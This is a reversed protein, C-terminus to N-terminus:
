QQNNNDNKNNLYPNYVNSKPTQAKPADAKPAENGAGKVQNLKDFMAENSKGSRNKDAKGKVGKVILVVIVVIILVAGVVIPIIIALNLVAKIEVTADGTFTVSAFEESSYEQVTGDAFTVVYALKQIFNVEDSPVDVVSSGHTVTETETEGGVHKFTITYQNISFRSDNVALTFNESVTLVEVNFKNGDNQAVAIEEAGFKFTYNGSNIAVSYGDNAGLTSSSAYTYGDTTRTVTYTLVATKVERTDGIKMLGLITESVLVFDYNGNGSMTIVPINQSYEESVEYSFKYGSAIEDNNENKVDAKNTAVLNGRSPDTAPLVVTKTEVIFFAYLTIDQTFGGVGPNENFDIFKDKNIDSAVLDNVNIAQKAEIWGFQANVSSLTYNTFKSAYDFNHVTVAAVESEVLIDNFEYKNSADTWGNVGGGYYVKFSIIYENIRLETSEDMTFTVAQKVSGLAFEYINYGDEERIPATNPSLTYVQSSNGASLTFVLKTKESYRKNLKLVLTYTGGYQAPVSSFEAIILSNYVYTWVTPAFPDNQELEAIREGNLDAGFSLNHGNFTEMIYTNVTGIVRVEIVTDHQALGGMTGQPFVINYVRNDGKDNYGITFAKEPSLAIETKDRLVGNIWIQVQPEYMNYGESPTFGISYNQGFNPTVFGSSNASSAVNNIYSVATGNTAVVKFKYENYVIYPNFTLNESVTIDSLKQSSNGTLEWDVFHQGSEINFSSLAMTAIEQPITAGYPVKITGNDIWPHDLNTKGALLNTQTTANEILKIDYVERSFDLYININDTIILDFLSSCSAFDSAVATDYTVGRNIADTSLYRVGNDIYHSIRCESHAQMNSIVNDIEEIVRYRNDEDSYLSQGFKVAFTYSFQGDHYESLLGMNTQMDNEFCSEVITVTKVTRTFYPYVYLDSTIKYDVTFRGGYYDGGDVEENEYWSVVQARADDADIGGVFYGVFNWGIMQPVPLSIASYAETSKISAGYTIDKFDDYPAATTFEYIETFKSADEYSSTYNLGTYVVVKYKDISNTYIKELEVEVQDFDLSIYLQARVYKIKITYSGEGTSTDFSYNSTFYAEADTTTNGEVKKYNGNDYVYLRFKLEREPNNSDPGYKSFAKGLKFTIIQENNSGIYPISSINNTFHGFELDSASKIYFDSEGNYYGVGNTLAKFKAYVSLNDYMKEDKQTNTFLATDAGNKYWGTFSYGTISQNYKALHTFASGHSYTQRGDDLTVVYGKYNGTLENYKFETKNYSVDKAEANYILDNYTVTYENLKTIKSTDVNVKFVDGLTGSTGIPAGADVRRLFELTYTKTIGNVNSRSGTEPTITIRFLQNDRDVSDFNNDTYYTYVISNGSDTSKIFIHNKAVNNISYPTKTASTAFSAFPEYYYYGNTETVGNEGPYLIVGYKSVVFYPTSQDYAAYMQMRVKLLNTKSFTVGIDGTSYTIDSAVETWADADSAKNKWTTANYNVSLKGFNKYNVRDYEGIYASNGQVDATVLKETTVKYTEEIYPAVLITNAKITNTTTDFATSTNGAITYWTDQNDDYQHGEIDTRFSQGISADNFPNTIKSGYSYIEYYYTKWINDQETTGTGDNYYLAGNDVYNGRGDSVGKHYAVIYQNLRADNNVKYADTNFYYYKVVIDTTDIVNLNVDYVATLYQYRPFLGANVYAEDAIIEEFNDGAFTADLTYTLIVQVGSSHTYTVVYETLTTSKVNEVVESAECDVLSVEIGNVEFVPLSQTYAEGMTLKFDISDGHYIKVVKEADTVEYEEDSNKKDYTKVTYVVNLNSDKTEFPITVNYVNRVWGRNEQYESDPYITSDMNFAGLLYANPNYTVDNFKVVYKYYGLQQEWGISIETSESEKTITCTYTAKAAESGELQITYTYGGLSYVYSSESNKTVEVSNTNNYNITAKNDFNYNLNFVFLLTYKNNVILTPITNNYKETLVFSIQSDDGYIVNQNENNATISDDDITPNLYYYKNDTNVVNTQSGSVVTYTNLQWDVEGNIDTGAFQIEINENIGNLYYKKESSNWCFGDNTATNVPIITGDPLKIQLANNENYAQSFAVNRVFSFAYNTHHGQTVTTTSEFVGYNYETGSDNKTSKNGPFTIKYENENYSFDPKFKFEIGFMVGTINITVKYTKYTFTTNTYTDTGTTEAINATYRCGQGLDGSTALDVGNIKFHGYTPQTQSYKKSVYYVLTTDEGMLVKKDNGSDAVFVDPHYVDLGNMDYMRTEFVASIVMDRYIKTAGFVFKSYWSIAVSDGNNVVKVYAGAPNDDDFGNSDFRYYTSDTDGWLYVRTFRNVDSNPVKHNNLYNIVGEYTSYSNLATLQTNNSTNKNVYYWGKYEAYLSISTQSEGFKPDANYYNYVTEMGANYGTQGSQYHIPTNYKVNKLSYATIEERQNDDESKISVKKYLDSSPAGGTAKEIADTMQNPEWAQLQVSFELNHYVAVFNLKAFTNVFEWKFPESVGDDNIGGEIITDMDLYGNENAYKSVFEDYRINCDDTLFSYYGNSDYGSLEWGVFQLISNYTYNVYTTKTEASNNLLGDDAEDVVEYPALYYKYEKNDVGKIIIPLFERTDADISNYTTLNINNTLNGTDKISDTNITYVKDDVNTPNFVNISNFSAGYGAINDWQKSVVKDGDDNIETVNFDSNFAVEYEYAEAGTFSFEVDSVVNDINLMIIIENQYYKRPTVNIFGLAELEAQSYDKEELFYTIDATIGNVAFIPCEVDNYVIYRTGDARTQAVSDAYFLEIGNSGQKQNLQITQGDADVFYWMKYQWDFGSDTKGGTNFKGTFIGKTYDVPAITFTNNVKATIREVWPNYGKAAENIPTLAKDLGTIAVGEPVSETDLVYTYSADNTTNYRGVMDDVYNIGDSAKDNYATYYSAVLYFCKGSNANDSCYVPNKVDRSITLRSTETVYYSGNFSKYTWADNTGNFSLTDNGNKFVITSNKLDTLTQDVVFEASSFNEIGTFKSSSYLTFTPIFWLTGTNYVGDYNNLINTDNNYILNNDADFALEYGDKNVRINSGRYISASYNDPYKATESMRYNNDDVVVANYVFTMEPMRLDDDNISVYYGTNLNIQTTIDTNYKINKIRTKNDLADTTDLSTGNGNVVNNAKVGTFNIETTAESIQYLDEVIGDVSTINTELVLYNNEVGSATFNAKDAPVKISYYYEKNIDTTPFNIYGSEVTYDVNKVLQREAGDAVVYVSFKEVIEQAKSIYPNRIRVTLSVDQGVVGSYLKAGNGPLAIEKADARVGDVVYMFNTLHGSNAKNIRIDYPSRIVDTYIANSALPINNGYYLGTRTAYIVYGASMLDEDSNSGPNTAFATNTGQYYWRQCRSVEGEEVTDAHDLVKKEGEFLRLPTGASLDLEYSNINSGDIYTILRENSSVAYAAVSFNDSIAGAGLNLLMSIYRNGGVPNVNPLAFTYVNGSTLYTCEGYTKSTATEGNNYVLRIYGNDYNNGVSFVIKLTHNSINTRDVEYSKVVIEKETTATSNMRQVFLESKNAITDAILDNYDLANSEIKFDRDSANVSEGNQVLVNDSGKAKIEFGDVGLLDEVGVEIQPLVGYSNHQKYYYMLNQFKYVTGNKVQEAQWDPLYINEDAYQQLTVTKPEGGAELIFMAATGADLGSFLKTSGQYKSWFGQSMAWVFGYTDVEGAKTIDYDPIENNKVQTSKTFDYGAVLGTALAYESYAGKGATGIRFGESGARLDPITVKNYASGKQSNIYNVYTSDSHSVNQPVIISKEDLNFAMDYFSRFYDYDSYTISRKAQARYQSTNKVGSGKLASDTSDFTFYGTTNALKEGKQGTMTGTQTMSVPNYYATKGNYNGDTSNSMNLWNRLYSYTYCTGSSSYLNYAMSDLILDSQLVITDNSTVKYIRWKIPEVEFLYSEGSVYGNSTDVGNLYTNTNDTGSTYSDTAENAHTYIVGGRISQNVSNSKNAVVQEVGNQDIKYVPYKSAADVGSIYEHVKTGIPYVKGNEGDVPQLIIYYGTVPDFKIYDVNNISYTLKKASKGLANMSVTTSAYSKGNIYKLENIWGQITASATADIRSQPYEGFEVYYDGSTIPTDKEALNLVTDVAVSMSYKKPASNASVPKLNSVSGFLLFATLVIAFISFIKSYKKRM